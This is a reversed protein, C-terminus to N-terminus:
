EEDQCVQTMRLSEPLYEGIQGGTWHEPKLYHKVEQVYDYDNHLKIKEGSNVKNGVPLSASADFPSEIM